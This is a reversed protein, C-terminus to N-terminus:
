QPIYHGGKYKPKFISSSLNQFDEESLGRERKENYAAEILENLQKRYTIGELTMDWDGKAEESHLSSILLILQYNTLNEFLRM